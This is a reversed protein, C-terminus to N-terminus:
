LLRLMRSPRRTHEHYALRLKESLEEASTVLEDNEM